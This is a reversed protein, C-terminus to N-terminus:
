VDDGTNFISSKYGAMLMTTDGIGVWAEDIGVTWDKTGTNDESILKITASAPGFDSDATGVFKLWADVDGGNSNLGNQTPDLVTFNNGTNNQFTGYIRGPDYDGWDYEFNVNGTIVLCNDDSSITLGSLGLEDCVDLSTVVGLDAAYGATSLGAIAASGLLLSRIKM